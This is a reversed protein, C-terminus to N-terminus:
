AVLSGKLEQENIKMLEYMKMEWLLITTSFLLASFIIVSGIVIWYNTHALFLVAAGIIYTLIFAEAFLVAHEAPKNTHEKRKGHRDLMDETRAILTGFEIIGVSEIAILIGAILICTLILPTM